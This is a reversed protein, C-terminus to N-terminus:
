NESKTFKEVFNTAEENTEFTIIVKNQKQQIREKNTTVLELSLLDEVERVSLKDKVIRALLDATKEPELTVMARAHGFSIEDNNLAKLVSSDLKLIRTINTIQSRSVFMLKALSEHSYGYKLALNDLIFALELINSQQSDRAKALLILLTEEDNYNMVIVPIEKIKALRAATLRKRGIIVEYRDGLPRVVLPELLINRQYNEVFRSIKAKSFTVKKVFGNDSILASDILQIPNNYHTKALEELVNSRSYKTILSSLREKLIKNKSDKKM